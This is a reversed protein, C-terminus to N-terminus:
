REFNLARYPALRPDSCIKNIHAVLDEHGAKAAKTSESNSRPMEGAMSIGLLKGLPSGVDGSLDKMNVYIKDCGAAWYHNAMKWQEYISICNDLVDKVEIRRIQEPRMDGKALRHYLTSQFRAVLDDRYLCIVRPESDFFWRLFTLNRVDILHSTLAKFGVQLESHDHFYTKAFLYPNKNRQSVTLSTEQKQSTGNIKNPGLIEGHCIVGAQKNLWSRM